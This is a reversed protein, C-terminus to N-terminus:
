LFRQLFAQEGLGTLVYTRGARSWSATTLKNVRTWHPTEDPADHMARRDIVFLFLMDGRGSDFCVMSVPRSQWSLLGGGTLPQRELGPPVQYDAPAGQAAHFQRLHRLDNTEIDMRYERLVTRVMRARFEAFQARPTPRQWWAALGLFLLISAALAWAVRRQWWLSPGRAVRQALLTEKSGDVVPLERFKARLERQFACHAQFWEKLAPERQALGLAAQIEPDSEDGLGPRYILLIRQAQRSNV